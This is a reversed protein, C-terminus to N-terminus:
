RTTRGRLVYEGNDNMGTVEHTDMLPALRDRMALRWERAAAPNSSRLGVIDDPTPVTIPDADNTPTPDTAEVDWWAMLRDTEESGNIDDNLAGYFDVHYEVARAGLRRLNFWGNRRVLPDFTWTIAVLGHARAWAHQHMKLRAGLGSNQLAPVVGTIHSHLCWAGGHRALMGFSCGVMREDLFSGAVYGGVHALAMLFDSSVMDSATGGWVEGATRRLQDMETLEHLERIVVDTM